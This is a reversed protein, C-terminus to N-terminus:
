SFHESLKEKIDDLAQSYMDDTRRGYLSDIIARVDALVANSDAKPLNQSLDDYRSELWRVYRLTHYDSSGKRYLAKEGTELEYLKELEM